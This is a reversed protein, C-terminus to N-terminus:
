APLSCLLTLELRLIGREASSVEKLPLKALLDGFNESNKLFTKSRSYSFFFFFLLGM